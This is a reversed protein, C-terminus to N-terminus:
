NSARDKNDKTSKKGEIVTLHPAHKRKKRSSFTSSSRTTTKKTREQTKNYKQNSRKAAKRYKKMEDNAGAQQNQMVRTVIM